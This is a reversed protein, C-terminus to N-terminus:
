GDSPSVVSLVGLLVVEEGCCLVIGVHLLEYIQKICDETATKTLWVCELFGSMM